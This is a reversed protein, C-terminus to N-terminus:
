SCLYIATRELFLFVEEVPNEQFKFMDFIVLLSPVWGLGNSGTKFFSFTLSIEVQLQEGVESTVRYLADFHEVRRPRVGVIDLGYVKM